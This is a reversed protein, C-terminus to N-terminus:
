NRITGTNQAKSPITRYPVPTVKQILITLPPRRRILFRQPEGSEEEEEAEEELAKERSAEEERTAALGCGLQYRGTALPERIPRSVSRYMGGSVPSIM